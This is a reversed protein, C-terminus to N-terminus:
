RQHYFSDKEDGRGFAYNVGVFVCRTREARYIM